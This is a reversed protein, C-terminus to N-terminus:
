PFGCGKSIKLSATILEPLNREGLYLQVAERVLMEMYKEAKGLIVNSCFTNVYIYFEEGKYEFLALEEGKRRVTFPYLKCAIPKKDQLSCLTGMQFPCKDNIKKIYFKGAREEVFRTNKLKLYEYFTLGVEYKYCCKGCATCHWSSVRRWPVWM